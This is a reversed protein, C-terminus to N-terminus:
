SLGVRHAVVAEAIDSRELGLRDVDDALDDGLDLPGHRSKEPPLSEITISRSASFANAGARMGNGTICTSVPCLKGSTSSNRSRRTSSSPTWSM